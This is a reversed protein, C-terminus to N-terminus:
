YFQTKVFEGNADGYGTIKYEQTVANSFYFNLGLSDAVQKAIVNKGTGAPGVLMVPEDMAVFKLITDLQEHAIGEVKKHEGKYEIVKTLVKNEIFKNIKNEVENSIKNALENGMLKVIENGLLSLVNLDQKKETEVKVTENQEKWKRIERSDAVEWIDNEPENIKSEFYKTVVEEGFEDSLRELKDVIASNGERFTVTYKTGKTRNWLKVVDKMNM